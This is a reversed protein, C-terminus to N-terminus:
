PLYLSSLHLLRGCDGVSSPVVVIVSLVAREQSADLRPKLRAGTITGARNKQGIRFIQPGHIQIAEDIRRAPLIVVARCTPLEDVAEATQGDDLVITRNARREPMCLVRRVLVCGSNLMEVLGHAAGLDDAWEEAAIGDEAQGLRPQACRDM